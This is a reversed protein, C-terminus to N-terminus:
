AAQKKLLVNFSGDGKGHEGHCIACNSQYELKGTDVYKELNVAEAYGLAPAAILASGLVAAGVFLQRVVGEGVPM